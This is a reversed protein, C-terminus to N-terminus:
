IAQFHALSPAIPYPKKMNRKNHWQNNALGGSSILGVLITIAAGIV